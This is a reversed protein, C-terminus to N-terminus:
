RDRLPVVASLLAGFAASGLLMATFPLTSALLPELRRLVFVHVALWVAPAFVTGFLLVPTARRVHRTLQSITVGVAMGLVAALALGVAQTVLPDDGRSALGGIVAAVDAGRRRAALTAVAVAVIGGIGGVVAGAVTARTRSALPPPPAVSASPPVSQRPEEDFWPDLRGQTSLLFPAWKDKAM